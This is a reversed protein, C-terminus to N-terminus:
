RLSRSTESKLSSSILHYSLALTLVRKSPSALVVIAFVILLMNIPKLIVITNSNTRVTKFAVDRIVVFIQEPDRFLRFDGQHLILNM